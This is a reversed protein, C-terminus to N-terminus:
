KQPIRSHAAIGESIIINSTTSIIRYRNIQVDIEKKSIEFSIDKQVAIAGGKHAGKFL